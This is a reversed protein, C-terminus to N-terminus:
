VEVGRKGPRQGWHHALFSRPRRSIGEDALLIIEMLDYGDGGLLCLIEFLGLPPNINRWGVSGARTGRTPGLGHHRNPITVMGWLSSFCPM